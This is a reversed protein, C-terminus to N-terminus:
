RSWSLRADWFAQSQSGSGQPRGSATGIRTDDEGLEEAVKLLCDLPFETERTRCLASKFDPGTLPVEDLGPLFVRLSGTWSPASGPVEAYSATGTFPKTPALTATVPKIGPESSTMAEARDEALLATRIIAMGERFESSNALFFANPPISRNEDTAPESGFAYFDINRGKARSSAGVLTVARDEDLRDLGRPAWPPRKCVRRFTRTFSGRAHKTNVETFGREGHFRITGSFHGVEHIPRQGKCKTPSLGAELPRPSGSFRVSIRGLSGFDAEVEDSSARGRVAYAASVNGKSAELYLLDRSITRLSLRYGHTGNM